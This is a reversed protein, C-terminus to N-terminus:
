KVADPQTSLESRMYTVKATKIRARMPSRATKPEWEWSRSINLAGFQLNWTYRLAEIQNWSDLGYTKAVKELIPPRTQAWVNAALMWFTFALARIMAVGRANRMSRAGQHISRISHPHCCPSQSGSIASQCWYM